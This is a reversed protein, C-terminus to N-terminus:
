IKQLIYQGDLIKVKKVLGKKLFGDVARKVPLDGGLEPSSWSYDDGMLYGGKKVKPLYLELDMKVYDYYHNGDIYVWDFFENKFIDSAIHSFKRHVIINPNNKFAELIHFYIKDMDSQNKAIKGGYLRNGFEPQFKWPDILHFEKPKVIRLIKKSFEGKWVGIEAGITNKQFMKLLFIRLM